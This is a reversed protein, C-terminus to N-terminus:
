TERGESLPEEPIFEEAAGDDRIGGRRPEFKTITEMLKPILDEMANVLRVNPNNWARQERLIDLADDRTAKVKEWWKEEHKIEENKIDKETKTKYCWVCGGISTCVLITLLILAITAAIITEAVCECPENDDDIDTLLLLTLLKMDVTTTRNDVANAIYAPFLPLSTYKGLWAYRPRMNSM